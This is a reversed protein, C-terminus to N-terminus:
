KNTTTTSGNSLHANSITECTSRASEYQQLLAQVQADTQGLVGVVPSPTGPSTNAHAAQQAQGIGSLATELGQSAIRMATRCELPLDNSAVTSTTAAAAPQARNHGLTLTLAGLAFGLVAAFGIFVLTRKGV